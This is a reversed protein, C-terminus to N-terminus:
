PKGALLPPPFIHTIYVSEILAISISDMHYFSYVSFSDVFLIWGIVDKIIIIGAAFVAGNVVCWYTSEACAVAFLEM